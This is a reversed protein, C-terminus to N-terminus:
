KKDATIDVKSREAPPPPPSDSMKDDAPVHDPSVRFLVDFLEGLKQTAQKTFMGVLFATAVFGIVNLDATSASGSFFGARVAFYVGLALATGIFPRLGYWWRWSSVISRAGTYNVFSTAAHVYSGLAGALMVLFLLQQEPSLNVSFRADGWLFQIPQNAEGVNGGGITSPWLKFLLYLILTALVVHYVGLVRIWGISMRASLDGNTSERRVDADTSQAPHTTTGNVV